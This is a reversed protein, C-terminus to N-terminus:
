QLILGFQFAYAEEGQGSTFLPTTTYRAYLGISNYGILVFPSLAFDNFSFDDFNKDKNGNELKVKSHTRVRYGANVGARVFFGDEPTHSNSQFGLSIPVGLYNVVVKSKISNAMSDIGTSFYNQDGVLRTDSNNFTYNNIDYRLGLWLRLKGKVMNFGWNHELGVHISKGNNLEPFASYLSPQQVPLNGPRYINSFGINFNGSSIVAPPKHDFHHIQTDIEINEIRVEITDRDIDTSDNGRKIIVIRKDKKVEPDKEPKDQALLPTAALALLTLLSAPILFHKKM